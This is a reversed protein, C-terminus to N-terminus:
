NGAQPRRILDKFWLLQDRRTASSICRMFRGLCVVVHAYFRCAAVNINQTEVKLQHFGRFPGRWRADFLASGIGQRAGLLWEFPGLAAGGARGAIMPRRRAERAVAARRRVSRWHVGLSDGSRFISDSRGGSRDTSRMRLGQTRFRWNVLNSGFARQRSWYHRRARRAGRLSRSTAMSPWRPVPEEIVTRYEHQSTPRNTRNVAQRQAAPKRRDEGVATLCRRGPLDSDDDDGADEVEERVATKLRSITELWRWATIGPVEDVSMKRVHYLHVFFM